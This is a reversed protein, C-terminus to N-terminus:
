FIKLPKSLKKSFPRSPEHSRIFYLSIGKFTGPKDHAVAFEFGSVNSPGDGNENCFGRVM